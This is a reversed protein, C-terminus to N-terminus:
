DRQRAHRHIDRDAVGHVDLDAVLLQGSGDDLHREDAVTFDQNRLLRLCFPSLGWKDPLYFPTQGWKAPWFCLVWWVPALMFIGASRFYVSDWSHTRVSASPVRVTPMVSYACSASPSMTNTSSGFTPLVKVAPSSAATTSDTLAADSM